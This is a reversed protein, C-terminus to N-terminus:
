AGGGAPYGAMPCSGGSPCPMCAVAMCGGAPVWGAAYMPGAPPAAAAGTIRTPTALEAPVDLEAPSSTTINRPPAPPAPAATLKEVGPPPRQCAHALQHSMCSGASTVHMLWSIHCAHRLQPVTMHIAHQWPAHSNYTHCGHLWTRLRTVSQCTRLRTVSQCTLAQWAPCAATSCSPHSSTQPAHM